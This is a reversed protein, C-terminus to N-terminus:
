ATNTSAQAQARAQAGSSASTSTGALGLKREYRLLRQNSLRSLAARVAIGAASERQQM